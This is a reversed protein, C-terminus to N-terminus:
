GVVEVAALSAGALSVVAGAPGVRVISPRRESLCGLDAAPSLKVMTLRSEARCVKEDDSPDHSCTSAAPGVRLHRERNRIGESRSPVDEKAGIWELM